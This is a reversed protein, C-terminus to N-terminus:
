RALAIDYYTRRETSSAGPWVAFGEWAGDQKRRCRTHVRVGDLGHEIEMLNYLRPTAEPRHEAPAGFSGAGVIHIKRTPHLYHAVDARDEHIHGHMCLRVDAQRLRELFADDAMMDAGTVPHHWVAIRLLSRGSLPEGSTGGQALQADANSLARAIAGGHLGARRPHHEDIEWASNFALFQLGSELFTRVSGQEQYRLPYEQGLLPEYFFKSFNRFRLPYLDENRVLVLTDKVVVYHGPKLQELKVERRPVLGYVDKVYWSLDHNGPVVICRQETLHFREMLASVFRRAQGFEDPHARNTLDGSIVLFDLARLGMGDKSDRLDAVLPQLLEEVDADAQIHLDSLHLIRLPEGQKVKRAAPGPEVNSPIDAPPPRVDAVRPAEQPTPKLASVELLVSEWSGAQLLPRPPIRRESVSPAVWPRVSPRWRTFEQEVRVEEPRVTSPLADRLSSPVLDLLQIARRDESLAAIRLQGPQLRIVHSDGQISWPHSASLERTDSRWVRVTDDSGSSVVFQGDSSFECSRVEGTHGELVGAHRAQSVDMLDIRASADGFVALVAGESSWALGKAPSDIPISRMGSVPSWLRIERSAPSVMALLDEAPSRQIAAVEHFFTSQAVEHAHAHADWQLIRDGEVVAYVLGGDRSWAVGRVGQIGPRQLEDTVLTWIWLEESPGLVIAVKRSDPSWLLHRGGVGPDMRRTRWARGSVVQWVRLFFESDVTALLSGDPSWAFGTVAGSPVEFMRERAVVM